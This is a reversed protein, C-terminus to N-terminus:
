CVQPLRAIDFEFQDTGNVKRDRIKRMRELPAPCHVPEKESPVRLGNEHWFGQEYVIFEIWADFFCYPFQKPKDGDDPNWSILLDKCYDSDGECMERFIRGEPPLNEGPAAPSDFGGPSSLQVAQALLKKVEPESLGCVRKSSPYYLARIYPTGESMYVEMFFPFPDQKDDLNQGFNVHVSGDPLFPQYMQGTGGSTAHVACTQLVELQKAFPKIDHWDIWKVPLGSIEKLGKMMEKEPKKFRINDIICVNREADKSPPAIGFAKNLRDRYLRTGELERGRVV